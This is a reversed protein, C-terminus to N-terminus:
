LSSRVQITVAAFFFFDFKLLCIMVQYYQYMATRFSHKAGGARYSLPYPKKSKMKPNAGVVHFIAWSLYERSYRVSFLSRPTFRSVWIRFLAGQGLVDDDVVICWNRVPRCHPFTRNEAM